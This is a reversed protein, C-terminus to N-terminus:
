PAAGLWAHVAAIDPLRHRAASPGRNGVLVSLGDRMNVVEFGHEDTLDDGVFVPRRGRFPPEELFAEIAAGKDGRQPRLEVVHDGPQLHYDPLRTLVQMAFAQLDAAAEPMARWHLALAEGKDEVVAQPYRELLRAADARAARLAEPPEAPAPTDQGPGRRQLGHMGASPLRLPAFMRDLFEIRRGSVLALAGDLTEALEALRRVLRGSVVVREPHDAFDVLTGDADLFLAWRDSLPPPPPLFAGDSTM